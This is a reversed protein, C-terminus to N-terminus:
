ITEKTKSEEIEKMVEHKIEAGRKLGENYWHAKLCICGCMILIIGLVLWGRGFSISFPRWTITTDALFLLLLTLTLTSLYLKM